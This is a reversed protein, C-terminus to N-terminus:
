YAGSMAGRTRCRKGSLATTCEPPSILVAMCTSCSHPMQHRSPTIIAPPSHTTRTLTQRSPLPLAHLGPYRCLRCSLWAPTLLPIHLSLSFAYRHEDREM